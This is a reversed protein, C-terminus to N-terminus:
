RQNHRKRGSHWSFVFVFVEKYTSVPDDPDPPALVCSGFVDADVMMVTGNPFRNDVSLQSLPSAFTITVMGVEETAGTTCAVKEIFNTAAALLLAGSETTTLNAKVEFVDGDSEEVVDDIETQLGPVFTDPTFDSDGRDTTSSCGEFADGDFGSLCSCNDNQCQANAGCMDQIVKCCNGGLRDNPHIFGHFFKFLIFVQITEYNRDGHRRCADEFFLNNFFDGFVQFLLNRSPRNKDSLSQDGIHNALRGHKSKSQEPSRITAQAVSNSCAHFLMCGLSLVLVSRKLM